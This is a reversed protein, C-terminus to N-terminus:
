MTADFDSSSCRWCRRISKLRRWSYPTTILGIFHMKPCDSTFNRPYRTVGRSVCGSGARTCASWSKGNFNLFNEWSLLAWVSEPYALSKCFTWIRLLLFALVLVRSAQLLYLHLRWWNSLLAVLRRSCSAFEEWVVSRACGLAFASNARKVSADSWLIPATKCCCYWSPHSDSAKKELFNLGVSALYLAKSQSNSAM